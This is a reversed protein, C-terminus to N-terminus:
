AMGRVRELTADFVKILVEEEKPYRNSLEIKLYMLDQQIDNHLFENYFAEISQRDKLVRQRLMQMTVEDRFIDKFKQHKLNREVGEKLLILAMVIAGVGYVVGYSVIFYMALMVGLIWHEGSDVFTKITDLDWKEDRHLMTQSIRFYIYGLCLACYLPIGYVSMFSSIFFYNSLVVVLVLLNLWGFIILYNLSMSNVGKTKKIVLIAIMIPVLFIGCLIVKYVINVYLYDYRFLYVTFLTLGILISLPTSLFKCEDSLLCASVGVIVAYGQFITIIADDVLARCGM